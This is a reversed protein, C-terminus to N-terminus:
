RVLVGSIVRVPIEVTVRTWSTNLMGTWRKGGAGSTAADKDTRLVAGILESICLGHSVVAIHLDKGSRASEWVNPIILEAVAREARVQLDKLSEGNPFRDERNSIVPYVGRAYLEERSLDQDGRM